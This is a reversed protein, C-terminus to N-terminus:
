KLIQILKILYSFKSYKKAYFNFFVLPQNWFKHQHYLLKWDVHMWLFTKRQLKEMVIQRNKSSLGPELSSIQSRSAIGPSSFRSTLCHTLCAVVISAFAQVSWGSIPSLCHQYFTWIWYHERATLRFQSACGKPSKLSVARSKRSHSRSGRSM